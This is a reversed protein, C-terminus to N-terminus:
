NSKKSISDSSDSESGNSVEVTHSVASAMSNSSEKAKRKLRAYMGVENDRIFNVIVM